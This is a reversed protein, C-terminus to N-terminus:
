INLNVSIGLNGPGVGNVFGQPGLMPASDDPVCSMQIQTRGQEYRGSLNINTDPIRYALGVNWPSGGAGMAFQQQIARLQQDQQQLIQALGRMQEAFKSQTEVVKRSGKALEDLIDKLEAAESGYEWNSNKRRAAEAETNFFSQATVVADYDKTGDARMASKYKQLAKDRLIRLQKLFVVHLSADLMRELEEVKKDMLTAKQKPAGSPLESRLKAVASAVMTDAKDGLGSVVGGKDVTKRMEDIEGASDSLLKSATRDCQLAFDAVGKPPESPGPSDVDALGAAL